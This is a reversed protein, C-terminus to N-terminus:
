LCRPGVADVHGSPGGVRRPEPRVRSDQGCTSGGRGPHGEGRNSQDHSAAGLRDSTGPLPHKGGVERAGPRHHDPVRGGAHVREGIVFGDRDKEFPRSARTPDDNRTSLARMSAFGGVSMPTIAAESGGAIDAGYRQVVFALKM